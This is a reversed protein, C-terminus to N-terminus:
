IKKHNKFKSIKRMLLTFLHKGLAGLFGCALAAGGAEILRGAAQSTIGIQGLIGMTFATTATYLKIIGGFAGAIISILSDQQHNSM